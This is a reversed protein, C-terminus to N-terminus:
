AGVGAPADMVIVLKTGKDDMGEATFVPNLITENAKQFSLQYNVRLKETIM